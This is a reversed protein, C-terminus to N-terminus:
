VKGFKGEFGSTNGAALLSAQEIWNDRRIRGEFNGLQMDIRDVDAESWAAIQAFSTVDLSALLRKLKPGVGKIRTLDDVNAAQASASPQESIPAPEVKPVDPAQNLAPARQANRKTALLPPPAPESDILTRNRQAPKADEDLADIKTTEVRTKRNAAFIWWALAIGIVLAILFLLWNEQLLETM